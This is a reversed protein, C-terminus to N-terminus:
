KNNAIAKGENSGLSDSEGSDEELASAKMKVRSAPPKAFAPKVTEGEEFFGNYSKSRSLTSPDVQDFHPDTPRVFKHQSTPDVKKRPSKSSEASVRARGEGPKSAQTTTNFVLQPLLPGTNPAPSPERSSYQSTVKSGSRRSETQPHHPSDPPLGESSTSEESRLETEVVSDAASEVAEAPLQPFLENAIH